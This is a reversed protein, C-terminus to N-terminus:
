SFLEWSGDQKNVKMVGRRSKDKDFENELFLFDTSKIVNYANCYHEGTEINYYNRDLSYICSDKVLYPSKYAPFEIKEVGNSDLICWRGELHKKRNSDSMRLVEESYNAEVYKLLMFYKDKQPNPSNLGGIRYLSNSILQEDKTLCVFDDMDVNWEKCYEPNPKIKSLQLEGSNNPVIKLLTTNIKEM